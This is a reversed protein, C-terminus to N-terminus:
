TEVAPYRVFVSFSEDTVHTTCTAADGFHAALRKRINELALGNGVKNMRQKHDVPNSVEINCFREQLSVKVRACGGNPLPQIGHYIANEILPQLLLSPIVAQEPLPDMQWDVQLRDGLRLAEIDVFRQCLEIEQSMPVLCPERLSSRFLASLDEVMREATDPDSGILSAISNMSNFLFHPRIRSQLAQIRAELEAERQDNLQQQLYFYRLAIGAFIAALILNNLLSLADIAQKGGQFWSAILSFIATVGLIIGYSIAAAIQPSHQRFWHRLSCLCAASALVIWQVLLSTMGFWFWDFRGIGLRAISLALALLEGVLILALVAQVSCLNPLFDGPPKSLPSKTTIIDSGDSVIHGNYNAPPFTILSFVPEM